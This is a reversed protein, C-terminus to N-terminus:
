PVEKSFHLLGDLRRLGGLAGEFDYNRIKRDIDGLHMSYAEPPVRKRIQDLMQLARADSQNLMLELEAIASLADDLSSIRHPAPAGNPSAVSQLQSIGTLVVVLSTEMSEIEDQNVLEGKRLREEIDTALRHLSIAGINGSVGRIRHILAIADDTRNERVARAIDDLMDPSTQAFRDLMRLYVQEQGGARALGGAYDMGEVASLESLLSPAEPTTVDPSVASSRRRAPIWQMLVTFLDSPDVPKSLHDNMGCELARMRDRPSANATMAIIPLSALRPDRRLERTAEYGDMAPMHIDMLVADYGEESELVARVADSGDPVVEVNLGAQELLATTVQQNIESDEALLIRAGRITSLQHHASKGAPATAALPASRGYTLEMLLNFLASPTLPKTLFGEAGAEMAPRRATEADHYGTIVIIRPSANDTQVAKMARIVAMSDAEPLTWNFLVIEYRGSPQDAAHKLLGLAEDGSRCLTTRCGCRELYRAISRAVMENDDAILVRQNMFLTQPHISMLTKRKQKEFSISFYFCSGVGRESTVSLTGGMREVLGRSIALGLGTGGYRRTTSADAQTFPEFIRAQQEATLGIGTDSVEFRLEAYTATEGALSVSILVHGSDTFKVANSALNMLIQTLRLSDGVLSVPVDATMDCICEIGKDAARQSIINIVDSLVTSLDFEIAELEIQGSELRSMDLVSNLLEMLLSSAKGIKHLYEKQRDDLTTQSLLHNMGIIANMPTRIEHSLNSLFQDRAAGASEAAAVAERLDLEVERRKLVAWLSDLFSVSQRVDDDSYPVRKNAVGAVAVIRGKDFVPLSMHRRIPFHGEPLADHRNLAPYDNHVVVQRQRVADAWIGAREVPYVEEYAATCYKLTEETWCFLRITQEEENVFHLYGVQSKTLAVLSELAYEVVERLPAATRDRLSLVMELRKEDMRAQEEARKLMTVDELTVVVLFQGPADGPLRFAGTRLWIMQDQTPSRVGMVMPAISAEGSLIRNKAWASPPIDSGESTVVIWDDSHRLAVPIEEDTLKLIRTASRNWDLIEGTASYILVGVDLQDLFNSSLRFPMRSHM